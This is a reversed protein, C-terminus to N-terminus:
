FLGRGSEEDDDENEENVLMRRKSEFIIKCNQLPNETFTLQYLTM